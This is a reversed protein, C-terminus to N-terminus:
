CRQGTRQLSIRRKPPPAVRQWLGSNAMTFGTAEPLDAEVLFKSGAGIDTEEGSFPMAWELTELFPHARNALPIQSLVETLLGQRRIQDELHSDLRVCLHHQLINPDSVNKLNYELRSRFLWVVPSSEALGDLSLRFVIDDVSQLDTSRDLRELVVVLRYDGGRNVFQFYRFRERLLAAVQSAFSEGLDLKQTETFQGCYVPELCFFVVEVSPATADVPAPLFELCGAAFWALRLSAGWQQCHRRAGTRTRGRSIDEGLRGWFWM